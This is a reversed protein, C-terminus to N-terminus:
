SNRKEFVIFDTASCLVPHKEGYESRHKLTLPAFIQGPYAKAAALSGVIVIGPYAEKIEKITDWGFRTGRESIANLRYLPESRVISYSCRANIARDFPVTFVDAGEIWFYLDHKTSNFVLLGTPLRTPM